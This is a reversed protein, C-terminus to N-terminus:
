KSLNGVYTATQWSIYADRVDLLEVFMDNEGIKLPNAPLCLFRIRSSGFDVISCNSFGKLELWIVKTSWMIGLRLKENEVIYDKWGNGDSILWIFM